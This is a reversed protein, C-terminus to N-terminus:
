VQVEVSAQKRLLLVFSCIRIPFGLVNVQPVAVDALSTM